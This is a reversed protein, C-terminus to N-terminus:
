LISFSVCLHLTPPIVTRKSFECVKLKVEKSVWYKGVIRDQPDTACVFEACYRIRDFVVYITLLGFTILFWDISFGLLVMPWHASRGM